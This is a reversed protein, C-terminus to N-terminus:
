KGSLLSKKLNKDAPQAGLWIGFLGSKFDEGDISLLDKGNKVATLSGEHASFQFIDGKKIEERSFASTFEEIRSSLRTLEEPSVSNKFGEDVAEKMEKSGVLASTIILEIIMPESSAIIKKENDSKKNLYLAAVYLEFFAKKRIGAGNLVLTNGHFEKTDALNIGAVEVALVSITMIIGMLITFYKKM